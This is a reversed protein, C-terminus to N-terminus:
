PTSRQSTAVEPFSGAGPRGVVFVCRGIRIEDGPLVIRATDGVAQRNVWTNNTSRNDFVKLASGEVRFRAHNASVSDDDIQLDNNAAAGIWFDPRDIAVTRGAVARAKGALM